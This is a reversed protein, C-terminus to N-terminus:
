YEVTKLFNFADYTVAGFIWQNINADYELRNWATYFVNENFPDLDGTMAFSQGGFGGYYIVM